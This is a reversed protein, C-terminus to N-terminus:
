ADTFAIRSTFYIYPDTVAGSDSVLLVFINNSCNSSGTTYDQKLNLKRQWMGVPNSTGALTSLSQVRDYLITYMDEGDEQYCSTIQNPVTVTKLIQTAAPTGLAINPHWVFIIVRMVNSVDAVGMAWRFWISKLRCEDGVHTGGSSGQSTNALSYIGPTTNVTYSAQVIAYKEEENRAILRRVYSKTAIPTAKARKAPKTIYPYVPNRGRKLMNTIGTQHFGYFKM